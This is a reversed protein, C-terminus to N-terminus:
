DVRRVMTLWLNTYHDQIISEYGKQEMDILLGGGGGGWEQFLTIEFNSRSAVFDLDHTHDFPLVICEAWGSISKNEGQKVDILYCERRYM